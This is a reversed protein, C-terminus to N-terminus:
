GALIAAIDKKMKAAAQEIASRWNTDSPSDYAYIISRSATILAGTGDPKFCVKVDDAIGGQAGYGPVLFIQQPMLKRLEAADDRKTAGVVAGLCSYGSEGVYDNHSGIENILSAVMQAVTRGDKLIQSQVADGGPNSTRVLAFLGKNQEICIDLFPKLSDEGLYSNVTLADPGAFDGADDRALCGVAYHQASSGIDGRKADNIVLLDLDHADEILSHLCDLGESFYREFCASQFKVAPTHDAVARLTTLCFEYIAEIPEVNERVEDPLREYVPDIGVCIPSGKIRIQELLRDAFHTM